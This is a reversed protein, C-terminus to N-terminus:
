KPRCRMRCGMFLLVESFTCTYARCPIVIVCFYFCYDSSFFVSKFVLISFPISRGQPFYSTSKIIGVAPHKAYPVGKEKKCACVAMLVCMFVCLDGIVSVVWGTGGPGWREGREPASYGLFVVGNVEKGVERGEEEAKGGERGLQERGRETSGNM